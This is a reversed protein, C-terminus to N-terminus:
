FTILLEYYYLTDVKLSNLSKRIGNVHMHVNMEM